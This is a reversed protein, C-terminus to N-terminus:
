FNAKWFIPIEFEKIDPEKDTIYKQFSMITRLIPNNEPDYGKIQKRHPKFWNKLKGTKPNIYIGKGYGIFTNDLFFGM